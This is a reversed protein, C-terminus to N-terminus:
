ALWEKPLYPDRRDIADAVLRLCKVTVLSIDSPSHIHIVGGRDVNRTRAQEYIEAYTRLTAASPM